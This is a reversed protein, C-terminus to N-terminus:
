EREEGRWRGEGDKKGGHKCGVERREERNEAWERGRIMCVQEPDEFSDDAHVHVENM